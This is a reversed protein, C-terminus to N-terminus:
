CPRLPPSDTAKAADVPPLSAVPACLNSGDGMVLAIKQLDPDHEFMIKAAMTLPVALIAGVPGLVFGWVLTALVIVLPSLGLARGMIRPEIIMDVVLNVLAYGAAVGIAGGVGQTLLTLAIPPIAALVSGVVPIFNLGFALVGWMVPSDVGWMWCWLGLFVGNAASVVLKVFMYSQVERLGAMVGRIPAPGSFAKILKRRYPRAEVQIFVTIVLVLFLTQLYGALSLVTTEALATLPDTVDYVRVSAATERMSRAELWEALRAQVAQIEATYHPLSTVLDTVAIYVILGAAGVIALTATASVVATVVPPWGRSHVRSAVPQFATAVALALLLPVVIPAAIHAVGLLVCVCVLAVLSRM